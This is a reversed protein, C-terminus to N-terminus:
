TIQSLIAFAVNGYNQGTGTSSLIVQSQLPRTPLVLNQTGRSFGAGTALTGSSWLLTGTILDQLRFEVTQGANLGNASYTVVVPGANHSPYALYTNPTVGAPVPNAYSVQWLGDNSGLITGPSTPAASSVYRHQPVSVSKYSGYLTQTLAPPGTIIAPRPLLQVQSAKVATRYHTMNGMAGGLNGVYLTELMLAMGTADYWQLDYERATPTGGGGTEMAMLHLSQWAAVNLIPSAAPTNNSLVTQSHSYIAAMNDISPAGSVAIGSAIEAALVSAAVRDAISQALGQALIQSAIATADFMQGRNRVHVLTSTAGIDCVAYLPQGADWVMTSGSGLPYGIGAVLGTDDSLYIANPGVNRLTIAHDFGSPTIPSAISTVPYTGIGM